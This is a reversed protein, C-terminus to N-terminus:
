KNTRLKQFSKLNKCDQIKWYIIVIIGWIILTLPIFTDLIIFSLIVNECVGTQLQLNKCERISVMLAMMHVFIIMLGLILVSYGNKKSIFWTNNEKSESNNFHNQSEVKNMAQESPQM